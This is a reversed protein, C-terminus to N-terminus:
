NVFNLFVKGWVEDEEWVPVAGDPLKLGSACVRAKQRFQIRSRYHLKECTGANGSGQWEEGGVISGDERV